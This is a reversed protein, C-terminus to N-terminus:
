AFPCAPRRGRPRSRQCCPSRTGASSRTATTQGAIHDFRAHLIVDHAFRFVALLRRSRRRHQGACTVAVALTPSLERLDVPRDNIASRSLATALGSVRGDAAGLRVKGDLLDGFRVRHCCHVWRRTRLRVPRISPSSHDFQQTQVKIFSGPPHKPFGRHDTARREIHRVFDAHGFPRDVLGPRPDQLSQLLCHFSQFLIPHGIRENDRTPHGVATM